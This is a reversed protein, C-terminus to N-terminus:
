MEKLTSHSLVFCFVILPFVETLHVVAVRQRLGGGQGGDGRGQWSSCDRIFDQKSHEFHHEMYCM